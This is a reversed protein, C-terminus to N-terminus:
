RVGLEAYTGGPQLENNQYGCEECSFSMVVVNKYYPIRTLLLRTM